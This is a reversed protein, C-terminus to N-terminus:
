VMVGGGFFFCAERVGLWLVARTMTVGLVPTVEELRMSFEGSVVLHDVRGHLEMCQRPSEIPLDAWAHASPEDHEVVMAQGKTRNNDHLIFM